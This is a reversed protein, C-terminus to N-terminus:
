KELKNLHVDMQPFPITIGAKDPALRGNEFVDFYVAWYDEPKAYPRVALNVSSDALDSVGAFPAPDKLVKPHNELINMLVDKAAKINSSYSIGFTM